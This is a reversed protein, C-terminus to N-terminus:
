NSWERAKIWDLGHELKTSITTAVNNQDPKYDKPIIDVWHSSEGTSMHINVMDEKSEVRHQILIKNMNPPKPPWGDPDDKYCESMPISKNVCNREKPTDARFVKVGAVMTPKYGCRESLMGISADEFPQYRIHPVHQIACSLLTRSLIFGAGQCYLPFKPEPYTAYSVSWKNSPDRSPLVQFQPCQGFYHLTQQQNLKDDQHFVKDYIGKLNVYSDDDTKVAYLFGGDSASKAIQHVISFYSMTKYTLVSDEGKYVEEEDIWIMDQYFMYEDKIEEWPGAVLFFVGPFQNAWTSRIYNRRRPGYGSAASLVGVIVKGSNRISQVPARYQLEHCSIVVKGIDESNIETDVMFKTHSKIPTFSSTCNEFSGTDNEHFFHDPPADWPNVPSWTRDGKTVKMIPRIHTTSSGKNGNVNNNNTIDNAKSQIPNNHIIINNNEDDNDLFQLNYQVVIIFCFAIIGSVIIREKSSIKMLKKMLNQKQRRKSMIM